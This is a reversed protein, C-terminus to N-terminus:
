ARVDIMSGVNDSPNAGATAVSTETLGELLQLAGQQAIDMSKKLVALEAQEQVRQQKIQTYSTAIGAIDSV